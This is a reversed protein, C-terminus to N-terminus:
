LAHRAGRRYGAVGGRGRGIGRGRGRGRVRGRGRGSSRGGGRVEGGNGVRNRWGVGNGSRGVVRGVTWGDVGRNDSGGVEGARKWRGVFGVELAECWRETIQPREFERRPSRRGSVKGRESGGKRQTERRGFVM